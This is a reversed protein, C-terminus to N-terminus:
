TKGEEKLKREMRMFCKLAENLSGKELLVQGELMDVDHTKEQERSMMRKQMNLIRVELTFDRWDNINRDREKRWTL